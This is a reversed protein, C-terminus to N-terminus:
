GAFQLGASKLKLGCGDVRENGSSTWAAVAKL